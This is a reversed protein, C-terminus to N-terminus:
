SRSLYATNQNTSEHPRLRTNTWVLTPCSANTPRSIISWGYHPLKREIRVEPERCTLGSLHITHPSLNELMVVFTRCTLTKGAEGECSATVPLNSHPDERMTLRFETAPPLLPPFPSGTSIASCGLIACFLVALRLPRQM